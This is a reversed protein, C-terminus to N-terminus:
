CVKQPAHIRYRGFLSWGTQDVLKPNVEEFGLKQWGLCADRPLRGLVNGISRWLMGYRKEWCRRYSALLDRYRQQERDYLYTMLISLRVLRYSVLGWPLVSTTRYCGVCLFRPVRVREPPLILAMVVWRRYSGHHHFAQGGCGRCEEPKNLGEGEYRSLIQM